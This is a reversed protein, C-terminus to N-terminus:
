AAKPERNGCEKAGYGGALASLHNQATELAGAVRPLIRRTNSRPPFSTQLPGPM